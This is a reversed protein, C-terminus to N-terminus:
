EVKVQVIKVIHVPEGRMGYTLVVTSNESVEGSKRLEEELENLGEEYDRSSVKITEIGRILALKRLTRDDASASIIKCRPRFSAIRQATRGSKTYVAIIANLSEALSVIGAAFKDTIASEEGIKRRPPTITEEYRQIIKALWRVTEVPYKGIATEGTLMLADVGDMLASVVDVVESRTPIPNEIMSGLIQTAVIVPKGHEISMGVIKKQLSPIEELPFHMGLDGRAVLIADAAEVIEPLKKVAIPTEIKAIISLSEAGLSLLIGRLMSIEEEGRTYSLGIYDFEEEVAFKVADIERSTIAPLDLGRGQIVMTKRSTIKADTLAKLSAESRSVSEVRFAARGDDMLILHGRRLARFAVENPLPVVNEEGGSASNSLVLKIMSGKKVDIPKAIDGLRVSPGRLDGILAFHKGLESEVERITEVIERWEQPNGHSFNIRFISAGAEAMEKIVNKNKSATGITVAIKTKAM